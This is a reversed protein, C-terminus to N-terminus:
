PAIESQNNKAKYEDPAYTKTTNKEVDLEVVKDPSTIVVPGESHIVRISEKGNRAIHKYWDKFPIGNWSSKGKPWFEQPGIRATAILEEITKKNEATNFSCKEWNPPEGNFELQCPGFSDINLACQNGESDMFMPGPALFFGYFPCKTREQEYTPTMEKPKHATKTKPDKRKFYNILSEFM